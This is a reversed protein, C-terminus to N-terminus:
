ASYLEYPHIHGSTFAKKNQIMANRFQILLKNKDEELLDATDILVDIIIIIDGKNLTLSKKLLVSRAGIITIPM